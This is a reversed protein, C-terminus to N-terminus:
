GIVHLESKSDSKQWIQCCRYRRTHRCIPVGPNFHTFVREELKQRIKAKTVKEGPAFRRRRTHYKAAGLPDFVGLPVESSHGFLDAGFGDFGDFGGGYDGYGMYLPQGSLDVSPGNNNNASILGASPQFGKSSNM